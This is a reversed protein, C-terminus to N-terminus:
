QLGVGLRAVPLELRRASLRAGRSLNPVGYRGHGEFHQRNGLAMDFTEACRKVPYRALAAVKVEEFCRRQLVCHLEHPIADRLAIRVEDRQLVALHDTPAVDQGDVQPGSRACM